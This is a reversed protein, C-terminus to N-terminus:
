GILQAYRERAEEDSLDSHQERYKGFFGMTFNFIRDATAESSTDFPAPADPDLGLEIKAERLVDKIRTTTRENLIQFIQERSVM